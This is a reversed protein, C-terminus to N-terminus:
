PKCEIWWLQIPENKQYLKQYFFLFGFSVEIADLATWATSLIVSGIISWIISVSPHVPISVAPPIISTITPSIPSSTIPSSIISVTSRPIIPSPVSGWVSPCIAIGSSTASTGRSGRRRCTTEWSSWASRVGSTRISVWATLPSPVLWASRANPIISSGWCLLLKIAAISHRREDKNQTRQYKQVEPEIMPVSSPSM